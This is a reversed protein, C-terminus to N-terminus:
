CFGWHRWCNRTRRKGSCSICCGWFCSIGQTLGIWIFSIWRGGCFPPLATPVPFLPRRPPEEETVRTYVGEETPIYRNYM